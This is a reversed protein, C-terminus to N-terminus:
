PNDQTTFVTTPFYDFLSSEGYEGSVYQVGSEILDPQGHALPRSYLRSLVAIPIRIRASHEFERIRESFATVRTDAVEARAGETYSVYVMGFAGAPIQLSAKGFLNTPAWTRKRMANPSVNKWLLAVPARVRDVIAEGGTDVSCCIGDWEPLDSNWDFLHQLMNPSYIPTHGPLDISSRHAEFATAGWLHRVERLPNPAFRQGVLKAVVDDIDIRDAEELLTLQFVGFLGKARAFHRLSLFLRQMVVEEDAEYKSMSQQRKCEIMTPYPDHCLIDPSKESTAELFDVSRGKEVCAAATLLEFITADVQASRGAWLQRLREDREGGVQAIHSGQRALQVLTPVLLAGAFQDYHPHKELYDRGVHLAQRLRHVPSNESASRMGKTLSLFAQPDLLGGIRSAERPERDSWGSPLLSEVRELAHPLYRDIDLTSDVLEATLNSRLLQDPHSAVTYLESEEFMEPQLGSAAPLREVLESSEAHLSSVQAEILDLVQRNEPTRQKMYTQRAAALAPFLQKVQANLGDIRTTLDEFEQTM